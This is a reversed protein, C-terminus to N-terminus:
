ASEHHSERAEALGDIYDEHTPELYIPSRGLAIGEYKGLLSLVSAEIAEFAARLENNTGQPDSAFRIHDLGDAILQRGKAYVDLFETTITDPWIM